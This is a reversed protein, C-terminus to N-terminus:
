SVSSSIQIYKNKYYLNFTMVWEGDIAVSLWRHRLHPLLSRWVYEGSSEASFVQNAPRTSLNMTKFLMGFIIHLTAVSGISQASPTAM